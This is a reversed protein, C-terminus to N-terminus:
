RWECVPGINRGQNVATLTSNLRALNGRAARLTRDTLAALDRLMTAGPFSVRTDLDLGIETRGAPTLNLEGAAANALMAAYQRAVQKRRTLPSAPSLAQRMGELDNTWNFYTSHEDVWRAISRLDALSLDGSGNTRFVERWFPLTRPCNDWVIEDPDEGGGSGGDYFALSQSCRETRGSTQNRMAVRYTGPDDVTVCSTTATFGAPGTWRYATNTRPPACLRATEGRDIATPGSVCDAESGVVSLQHTCQRTSGTIDNRSTLYYTGDVNVNVCAGTQQFYGPGTWTYTHLGDDNACLRATEGVRISGPGNIACSRAGGTVGGANVIRKCRDVETGYRSIVLLYEYSRAVGVRATVCRAQANGVLGPGYWDYEYDTGQPACMTFTQDLGVSAPGDILCDTQALCPSAVLCCLATVLFQWSRHRM